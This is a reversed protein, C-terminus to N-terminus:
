VVHREFSIDRSGLATTALGVSGPAGSAIIMLVQAWLCDELIHAAENDDNVVAKKIEALAVKVSFSRVVKLLAVCADDATGGFAHLTKGHAVLTTACWGSSEAKEVLFTKMFAVGAEFNTM